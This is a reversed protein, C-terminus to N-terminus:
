ASLGRPKRPNWKPARLVARAGGGVFVVGISAGAVIRTWFALAEAPDATPMSALVAAAEQPRDTQPAPPRAFGTRAALICLVAAAIPLPRKM